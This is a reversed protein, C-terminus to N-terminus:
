SHQHASLYVPLHPASCYIVWTSHLNAAWKRQRKNNDRSGHWALRGPDVGAIGQGDGDVKAGSGGGDESGRREVMGNAVELDPCRYFLPDRADVIM